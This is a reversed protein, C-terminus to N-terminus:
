ILCQLIKWKDNNWEVRSEERMMRNRDSNMIKFKM